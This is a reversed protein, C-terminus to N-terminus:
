TRLMGARFRLQQLSTRESMGAFWIPEPFTVGYVVRGNGRVDPILVEEVKRVPFITKVPESIKTKAFASVGVSNENWGLRQFRNPVEPALVSSKDVPAENGGILYRSDVPNASHQQDSRQSCSLGTAVRNWEVHRVGELRTASRYRGVERRLRNVGISSFVSAADAGISSFVAFALTVLKM